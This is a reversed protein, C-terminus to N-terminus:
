LINSVRSFFHYKFCLNSMHISLKIMMIVVHIQNNYCKYSCLMDVHFCFMMKMLIKKKKAEMENGNLENLIQECNMFRIKDWM